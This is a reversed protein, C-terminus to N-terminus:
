DISMGHGQEGRAQCNGHQHDTPASRQRLERAPCATRDAEEEAEEVRAQMLHSVNRAETLQPSTFCTSGLWKAVWFGGFIADAHAWGDPPVYRKQKKKDAEDDSPESKMPKKPVRQRKKGRGEEEEAEMARAAVSATPRRTRGGGLRSPGSRAQNTATSNSAGNEQAHSATDDTDGDIVIVDDAM